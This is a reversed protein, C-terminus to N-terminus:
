QDHNQIEVPSSEAFVVWIRWEINGYYYLEEDFESPGHCGADGDRGDRCKDGPSLNCMRYFCFFHIKKKQKNGRKAETTVRTSNVSFWVRTISSTKPTPSCPPSSAASSCGAYVPGLLCSSAATTSFSCCWCLLLPGWRRLSLSTPTILNRSVTSHRM